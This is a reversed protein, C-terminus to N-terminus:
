RRLRKAASRIKFGLVMLLLGFAFAWVGIWWIVIKLGTMPAFFLVAAFGLNVLAALLLLGRGHAEDLRFAAFLLFLGSVLSRIAILIFIFAVAFGPVAFMMVGIAINIVAEVLLWVWREGRRAQGFAAALGFGGDVISWLAYVFLLSFGAIQPSVFCLIGFLVGAFGRLAILWWRDELLELLNSYVISSAM